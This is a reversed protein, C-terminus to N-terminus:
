KLFGKIRFFPIISLFMYWMSKMLFSLPKECIFFKLRKNYCDETEWLEETNFYMFSTRSCDGTSPENKKRDNYHKMATLWIMVFFDYM